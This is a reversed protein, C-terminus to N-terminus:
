VHIAKIMEKPTISHKHKNQLLTVNLFLGGSLKLM